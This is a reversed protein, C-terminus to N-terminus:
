MKSLNEYNKHGRKMFYEPFIDQTHIIAHIRSHFLFYSFIM